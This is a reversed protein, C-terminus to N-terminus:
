HSQFHQRNEAWLAVLPAQRLGHTQWCMPGAGDQIIRRREGSVVFRRNEPEEMDLAFLALSETRSLDAPNHYGCWGSM